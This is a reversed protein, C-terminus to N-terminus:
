QNKTTYPGKVFKDELCAPGCSTNLPGNPTWRPSNGDVSISWQDFVGNIIASKEGIFKWGTTLNSVLFPLMLTVALTACLQKFQTTLILKKWKSPTSSKFAILKILLESITFLAAYGIYISLYMTSMAVHPFIQLPAFGLGGNAFLFFGITYSSWTLWMAGYDIFIKAIIIPGSVQSITVGMEEYFLKSALNKWRTTRISKPRNDVQKKVLRALILKQGIIYYVFFQFATYTILGSLTMARLWSGYETVILFFGLDCALKWVFFGQLRNFREIWRKAKALQSERTRGPSQWRALPLLREPRLWLSTVVFAIQPLLIQMFKALGIGVTISSFRDFGSAQLDLAQQYITYNYAM